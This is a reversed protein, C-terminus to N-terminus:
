KKKTQNKKTPKRKKALLKSLKACHLLHSSMSKPLEIHVNEEDHINFYLDVKRISVYCGVEYNEFQSPVGTLFPHDLAQQASLRFKTNVNLLKRILDQCEFSLFQPVDYEGKRIQQFLQAQNRKTWPLQGTVMAYFIIGLSWMDSTTGNYSKGSICEPSAYCPSGCPTSVLGDKLFFRSLGFDSIKIKGIKDILLNEPKLDRHTVGIMHIYKITEFLQRILPKAEDESLKSRDVIFQFIEGNPCFEFIVYYNNEDQLLDIFTVVGPHHLQQNIRIENEFRQFLNPTNIREKPIIKCAFFEGSISCKALKVVSFAGDGIVGFLLYQGIQNPHVVEIGPSDFSVTSM